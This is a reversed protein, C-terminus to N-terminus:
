LPKEDFVLHQYKLRADSLTLFGQLRRILGNGKRSILLPFGYHCPAGESEVAHFVSTDTHFGQKRWQERLFNWLENPPCPVELPLAFCGEGETAALAAKLNSALNSDEGNADYVLETEAILKSRRLIEDGSKGAIVTVVEFGLARLQRIRTDILNITASSEGIDARYGCLLLARM